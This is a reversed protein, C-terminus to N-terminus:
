KDLLPANLTPKQPSSVVIRNKHDVTPVYVWEDGTISEKIRPTAWFGGYTRFRFAVTGFMKGDAEKYYRKAYLHCVDVIAMKEICYWGPTPLSYPIVITKYHQEDPHEKGAFKM